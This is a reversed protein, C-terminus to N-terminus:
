VRFDLLYDQIYRDFEQKQDMFDVRLPLVYLPLNAQYLAQMHLDLRMADKETTLVVIENKEEAFRKYVQVIREVDYNDFVHHDEYEIEYISSVKPELYKLLYDTSAIASLLIVHTNKHLPQRTATNFFSYPAGYEYKSFYVKQHSMPSLERTIAARKETTLNDPCKTVIILDARRAGSRSERLRGSPMIYDRTYLNDYPTLLINLGPRVGRHQFADDLLVTQIGPIKQLIQPIAYARNEGVAVTIDPYKRKYNIPEDGVTLATDQVDVLRFGTTRRKYGRSLTAIDIYDKLLSILYEIHPTKGAGGISLNGVGIVPINFSSAKLLGIEYFFHFGYVIIGYILSLPALLIRILKNRVM